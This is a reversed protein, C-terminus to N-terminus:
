DIWMRLLRVILIFAGAVPGFVLALIMPALALTNAGGKSSRWLAIALAGLIALPAGAAAFVYALREKGILLGIEYLAAVVLVLGFIGGAALFIIREEITLPRTLPGAPDTTGSALELWSHTADRHIRLYYV